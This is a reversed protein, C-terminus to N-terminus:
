KLSLQESRASMFFYQAQPQNETYLNSMNLARKGILITTDLKGKLNQIVGMPGAADQGEFFDPCLLLMRSLEPVERVGGKAWELFSGKTSARCHM